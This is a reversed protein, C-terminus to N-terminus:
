LNITGPAIFMLSSRAGGTKSIDADINIGETGMVTVNAGTTLANSITAADVTNVTNTASGNGPNTSPPNSITITTPDLLWMGHNGSEASVDVAASSGLVGRSSTEVLGGAGQGAGKAQIVGAVSSKNESWVVATGGDGDVTANAKVEATRELTTTNANALRANKGQFGGGIEIYGKGKGGSANVQGRVVVDGATASIKGGVDAAGTGMALTQGDLTVRGQPGGDIWIEGNRQAVTNARVVGTQNIASGVLDGAQRATMWVKGGDALLSGSNDIQAQAAGGDVSVGILGGQGLELRVADGALLAIQGGDARITGANEVKPSVLAVLGGERAVIEGFNRVAGGQAGHTFAYQGSLIDKDTLQLSSAVLAGVNVQASPGFVIGNPNLLFLQGNATLRGYIQSPDAGLIRGVAIANSGPQLFQVSAASGINFTDFQTFLNQSGQTVSLANGISSISGIGSTVTGGTPLANPAPPNAQSQNSVFLSAILLGLIRPTYPTTNM